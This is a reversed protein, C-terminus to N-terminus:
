YHRSNELPFNNPNIIARGTVRLRIKPILHHHLNNSNTIPDFRTM